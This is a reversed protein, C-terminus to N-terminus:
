QWKDSAMRELDGMKGALAAIAERQRALLEKHESLRPGLCEEIVEKIVETLVRRTEEAPLSLPPASASRAGALASGDARVLSSGPRRQTFSTARQVVNALM